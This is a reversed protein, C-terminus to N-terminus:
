GHCKEKWRCFRCTFNNPDDSLREPPMKANFIDDAKRILADAYGKDIDTRCSTVRRLGPTSVTMYHRTLEALRMNLQGQGYYIIDWEKLASKEGHKIKLNELLDFKKDNVSKHEWIHWTKPAQKLGRVAGDLRGTLRGGLADLKYQKGERNPDHTHLEIGDVMRLDSAMLDEDKHGNRFIRLTKESFIEGETANIDNFLKLRCPHGIAGFGINKSTRPEQAKELAANIADLTPDAPNIFEALDVM